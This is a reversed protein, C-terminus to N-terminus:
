QKGGELLFAFDQQVALCHNLADAYSRSRGIVQRIVSWRIAKFIHAFVLFTM